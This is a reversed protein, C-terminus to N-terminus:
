TPQPTTGKRKRWHLINCYDYDDGDKLFCETFLCHMTRYCNDLLSKPTVSRLGEYNSDGLHELINEIIENDEQIPLTHYTQEYMKFLNELNTLYRHRTPHKEPLVRLIKKIGELAVRFWLYQLDKREVHQEKLRSINHLRFVEEYHVQVTYNIPFNHKMYRRRLSSNLQDKISNVATCKDSMVNMWVPLIWVLGYQEIEEMDRGFDLYRIEEGFAWQPALLPGHKKELPQTSTSDLCFDSSAEQVTLWGTELLRYFRIKGSSRCGSTSGRIALCTRRRTSSRPKSEVHKLERRTGGYGTYTVTVTGASQHLLTSFACGKHQFLGSHLFLVCRPFERLREEECQGEISVTTKLKF